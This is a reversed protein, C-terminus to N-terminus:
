SFISHWKEFANIFLQSNLSPYQRYLTQRCHLLGPEIGPNPVDRPSPFPLGNGYEKQVERTAWITFRRGVIHSVQTQDRPQSSERSFSIAVWKLVRAKFIGHSKWISPPAKPLSSDMPNCLTPCSQAVESEKKRNLLCKTSFSSHSGTMELCNISLMKKEM